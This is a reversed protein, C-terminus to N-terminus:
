FFYQFGLFDYNFNSNHNGALYVIYYNGNADFFLMSGYDSMIQVEKTTGDARIKTMILQTTGVSHAPEMQLEDQTFDVEDGAVWSNSSNNSGGREYETGTYVTYSIGGQPTTTSPNAFGLFTSGYQSPNVIKGPNMGAYNFSNVVTYPIKLQTLLSTLYSGQAKAGVVSLALFM